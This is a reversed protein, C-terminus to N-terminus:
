DDGCGRWGGAGGDGFEGRGGRWGVQGVRDGVPRGRRSQQHPIQPLHRHNPQLNKARPSRHTRKRKYISRPAPNRHISQSSKPPRIKPPPAQRLPTRNPLQIQNNHALCSQNTKSQTRPLNAKQSLHTKQIELQLSLIPNPTPQQSNATTTKTSHPPISPHNCSVRYSRVTEPYAELLLASQELFAQSTPLYPM